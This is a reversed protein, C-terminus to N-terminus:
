PVTDVQQIITTLSLQNVYVACKPIKKQRSSLIPFTSTVDEPLTQAYNNLYNNTQKNTKTTTTTPATPTDETDDQLRYVLM